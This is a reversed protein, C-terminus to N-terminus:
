CNVKLSHHHPMRFNSLRSPPNPLNSRSPTFDKLAETIVTNKACKNTLSLVVLDVM